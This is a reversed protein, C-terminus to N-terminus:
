KSAVTILLWGSGGGIKIDRDSQLLINGIPATDGRSIISVESLGYTGCAASSFIWVAQEERYGPGDPCGADPNPTLKIRVSRGELWRGVVGNSSAARRRGRNVIDGGVQRTVWIHEPDEATNSGMPMGSNNVEVPSAIALVAANLPITRGHDVIADFKLGLASGSKAVTVVRGNVHAGESIKEGTTLIVDQMVRGELKRGTQDKEANLGTSLSIPIATGPPLEQACAAASVMLCLAVSIRVVVSHMFPTMLDTSSHIVKGAHASISLAFSRARGPESVAHLASGKEM